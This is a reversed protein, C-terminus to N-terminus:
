GQRAADAAQREAVDRLYQDIVEEAPGDARVM